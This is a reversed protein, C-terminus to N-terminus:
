YARLPELAERILRALRQREDEVLFRGIQVRKTGSCLFLQSPHWHRLGPQWELRTWPAPMTVTERGSIRHRHVSLEAPGCDIVDRAKARRATVRLAWYLLGLEIGALPLIPWFGLRAYVLAVSLMVAALLGVVVAREFAPMAPNPRLEFSACRGCESRKIIIM